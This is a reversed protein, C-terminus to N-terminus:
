RSRRLSCLCNDLLSGDDLNGPDWWGPLGVWGLCSGGLRHGWHCVSRRRLGVSLHVLLFLLLRVGREPSRRFRHLYPRPGSPEPTVPTGLTESVDPGWWVRPERTGVRREDSGPPDVGPSLRPRDSCLRRVRYEFSHVPCASLCVVFYIPPYLTPFVSLLFSLCPLSPVSLFPCHVPLLPPVPCPPLDPPSLPIPLPLNLCDSLFLTVHPDPPSLLITMPHPSPQTALPTGSAAVVSGKGVRVTGTGRKPSGFRPGVGTSPPEEVVALGALTSPSPVGLVGKGRRRGSSVPVRPYTPPSLLDATHQYLGPPRSTRSVHPQCSLLPSPFNSSVPPQTPDPM